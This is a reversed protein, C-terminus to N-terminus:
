EPAGNDVVPGGSLHQQGAPTALEAGEVINRIAYGAFAVGASIADAVDSAAGGIPNRREVISALPEAVGDVEEDKALWLLSGKPAFRKHLLTTLAMFVTAIAGVVATRDLPEATSAQSSGRGTKPAPADKPEDLEPGNSTGPTTPQDQTTTPSPPPLESATPNPPAFGPLPVPDSIVDPDDPSTSAPRRLTTV